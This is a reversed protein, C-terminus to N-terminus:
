KGAKIFQIGHDAALRRLTKMGGYKVAGPLFNPDRYSKLDAFEFGNPTLAAENVGWGAV